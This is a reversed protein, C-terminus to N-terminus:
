GGFLQHDILDCLCHTILLHVEQICAITNSPDRIEVDFENLVSALLGNDKGTLAIVTMQKEHAMKVAQVINESNGSTTYVLLLEANQGLIM